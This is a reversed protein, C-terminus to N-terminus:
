PRPNRTLPKPAFKLVVTRGSVITARKIILSLSITVSAAMWLFLADYTRLAPEQTLLRTSEPFVRYRFPEEELNM